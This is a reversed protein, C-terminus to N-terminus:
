LGFDGLQKIKWAGAEKIVIIDDINQHYDDDPGKVILKIDINYASKIDDGDYNEDYEEMEEKMKELKRDSLKSAKKIEYSIKPNAGVEDELRDLISDIRKEYAEEIDENSKDYVDEVYSSMESIVGVADGKAVANFARNLTARYGTNNKLISIMAFVVVVAIIVGVAIPIIKKFDIGSVNSNQEGTDINPTSEGELPVGCNGCVKADEEVEAGCNGCFRAM